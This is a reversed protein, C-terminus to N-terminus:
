PPRPKQGILIEFHACLDSMTQEPLEGSKQTEHMTQVKTKQLVINKNQHHTCDTQDQLCETLHAIEWEGKKHKKEKQRQRDALYVAFEGWSFFTVMAWLIWFHM